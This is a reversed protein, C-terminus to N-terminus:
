PTDTNNSDACTQVAGNSEVYWCNKTVYFNKKIADEQDGTAQLAFEPFPFTGSSLEVRTEVRSYMDNARGTSDIAIQVQDFAVLNNCNIDTCMEVKFDTEPKGYPLSVVLFFTDINRNEGIPDPLRLIIENCMYDSSTGDCKVEYPATAQDHTNSEIFADTGIIRTASVANSPILFVTGRNTQDGSASEFQSLTFSNATQIIQASIVPPTYDVNAKKFKSGMFNQTTGNDKSYWSLRVAAVAGANGGVPRLPIVRASTASGLSALYDSTAGNMLVCTYYQETTTETTGTTDEKIFVEGGSTRNLAKGVLSCQDEIDTYSTGGSGGLFTTGLDLMDPTCATLGNVCKQYEGIAIKADEVGALASDYAAQALEDKASNSLESIIIRVFSVTIVSFLLTAIVVVYISTAGSKYKTKTKLM